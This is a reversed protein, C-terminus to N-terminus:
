GETWFRAVLASRSDVGTKDFIASLHFAVTKNSCDLLEAISKSALGRAVHELILTERATLRFRRRWRQALPAPDCSTRLVALVHGSGALGELASRTFTAARDDPSSRDRVAGVFAQPDHELLRRAADNAFCVAGSCSLIAAPAPIAELTARLAARVLDAESFRASARSPPPSPV